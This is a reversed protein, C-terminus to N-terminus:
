QNGQSIHVSGSFTEARVRGEGRGIVYDFNTRAEEPDDNQRRVAGPYENTVSGSFTEVSIAANANSALRLDTRGSHTEFEYRGSATVPGAFDINGSVTTARVREGRVARVAISGSVTEVSVSGGVGTVSIRGSVNEVRADGSINTATIRSSVGEASLSAGIDRVDVTGSVNSVELRGRLGSANIDGSVASLSARSGAPVTVDYTATGVNDGRGEHWSTKVQELTLHSDSADFQLSPTGTTSAVVRVENRDWTSLKMTGTVLSLEVTGNASFPVVTDIRALGSDAGGFWVRPTRPRPPRPPRPTRPTVVPEPPRPVVQAEAPIAGIALAAVVPLAVDRMRTKM